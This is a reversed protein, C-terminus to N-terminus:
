ELRDKFLVFAAFAKRERPSCARLGAIATAARELGSAVEDRNFKTTPSYDAQHRLSQLEAFIVAFARIPESFTQIAPGRCQRKALGHDLARYVREWGRSSDSIPRGVFASACTDALAHFMAYYSTSVCRRLACQTPARGEGACLQRAVEVFQRSIM